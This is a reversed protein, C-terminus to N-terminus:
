PSVPICRVCVASPTSRAARRRERAPELMREGRGVIHRLHALQDVLRGPGFSEAATFTASRSAAARAAGFSPTSSLARKRRAKNPSDASTSRFFALTRKARRSRRRRMTPAASTATKFGTTQPTSSSRTSRINRRRAEERRRGPHACGQRRLPGHRCRPNCTRRSEGSSAAATIRRASCWDTEGQRLGAV